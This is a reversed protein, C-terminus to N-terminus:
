LNEQSATWMGTGTDLKTARWPERMWQRLERDHTQPSIMQLAGVRKSGYVTVLSSKLSQQRARYIVVIKESM